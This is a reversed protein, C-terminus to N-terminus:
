AFNLNLTIDEVKSLTAHVSCEETSKAVVQRFGEKDEVGHATLDMTIKEMTDPVSQRLQGHIALEVSKYDLKVKDAHHVIHYNFCCGLAGLLMDYSGLRGDKSFGIDVTTGATELIGSFTRPFNVKVDVERM